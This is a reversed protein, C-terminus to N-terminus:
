HLKSHDCMSIPRPTLYIISKKNSENNAEIKRFNAKFNDVSKKKWNDPNIIYKVQNINLGQKILADGFLLNILQEEGENCDDINPFDCICVNKNKNFYRRIFNNQEYIIMFILYAKLLLMKDDLNNADLQIGQSNLIIKLFRFTFGKIEKPLSMIIFIKSYELSELLDCFDKYYKFISIYKKPNIDKNESMKENDSDVDNNDNANLENNLYWNDIIKYANFMVESKMIDNLLKIFEGNKLISEIDESEDNNDPFNINFIHEIFEKQIQPTDCDCFCIKYFNLLIPSIEYKNFFNDVNNIDLRKLYDQLLPFPIDKNCNIINNIELMAKQNQTVYKKVKPNNKLIENFKDIYMKTFNNEWIKNNYYEDYDKDIIKYMEIHKLIELNPFNNIMIPVTENIFELSSSNIDLSFLNVIFYFIVKIKQNEIDYEKLNLLLVKCFNLWLIRLFDYYFIKCSNNAKKGKYQLLSYQLQNFLDNYYKDTDDFIDVILPSSLNPAFEENNLYNIFEYNNKAKLLKISLKLILIANRNKMRNKRINEFQEYNIDYEDTSNIQKLIGYLLYGYYINYNVKNDIVPETKEIFSKFYNYLKILCFKTENNITGCQAYGKLYLPLKRKNCDLYKFINKLNQENRFDKIAADFDVVYKDRSNAIMNIINEKTKGSEFINIENTVEEKLDPAGAQLLLIINLFNELNIKVDIKLCNILYILVSKIIDSNIVEDSVDKYIIKLMNSIESFFYKQEPTKINNTGNLKYYYLLNNYLDEFFSDSCPNIDKEQFENAFDPIDKPFSTLFNIIKDINEKKTSNSM